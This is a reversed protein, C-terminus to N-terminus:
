IDRIAYIEHRENVGVIQRRGDPYERIIEEPYQPDDGYYIPRGAELHSRAAQGDDNILNAIVEKEWQEWDPEQVVPTSRPQSVAM